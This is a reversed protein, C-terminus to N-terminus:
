TPSWTRRTHADQIALELNEPREDIIKAQEASPLEAFERLGLGDIAGEVTLRRKTASPVLMAKVDARSVPRLAAERLVEVRIEEPVSPRAILYFASVEIRLDAVTEPKGEVLKYANIFNRATRESLDFERKLWPLWHGHGVLPKCECLRRGIEVVDAIVRRQLRRIVAAHEALISTDQLPTAGELGSSDAQDPM